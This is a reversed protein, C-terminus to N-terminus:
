ENSTFHYLTKVSKIEDDERTNDTNHTHFKVAVVDNVEYGEGIFEWINNTDDEILIRDNETGIVIANMTYTNTYYHIFAFSTFLTLMVLTTNILNYLNHVNFLTSFKKM